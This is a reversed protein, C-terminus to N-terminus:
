ASKLLNNVDLAIDTRGGADYGSLIKMKGSIVAYAKTADGDTVGDNDIELLLDFFEVSTPKITHTTYTASVGSTVSFLSADFTTPKMAFNFSAKYVVFRFFEYNNNNDNYDNYFNLQTTSPLTTGLGGDSLTLRTKQEPYHEYVKNFPSTLETFSGTSTETLNLKYRTLIETKPIRVNEQYLGSEPIVITKPGGILTVGDGLPNVLPYTAFDISCEASPDGYINLLRTTGQSPIISESFNFDYINTIGVTYNDVATATITIVDNVFEQELPALYHIDFSVATCYGTAADETKTLTYSYREPNKTKAFSINPLNTFIYNNKVTFKRNTVITNRSLPVLGTLAVSSNGSQGGSDNVNTLSTNIFVQAM